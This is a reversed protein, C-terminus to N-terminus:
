VEPEEIGLGKKLLLPMHMELKEALMAPPMNAGAAIWDCCVGCYAYVYMRISFATDDNLFADGSKARVLNVYYSYNYEVIYVRLSNQSRDELACRFFPLGQKIRELSKALGERSYGSAMYKNTRCYAWAILDYKDRFHYYFTHRDIGAAKCIESVSLTSLDQKQAMKTITKALHVKTRDKQM